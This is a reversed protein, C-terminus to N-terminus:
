YCKCCIRCIVCAMEFNKRLVFHNQVYSETLLKL